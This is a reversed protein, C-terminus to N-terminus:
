RMRKAFRGIDMERAVTKGEFVAGYLVEALYPAGLVGRTGLGNLIWVNDYVPHHGVLPRRDIVTPRIGAEHATITYECTILKELREILEERGAETITDSLDDRNYTAGIKYCDGGEPYIVGDGKLIAEVSLEPACFTLLEGKCPAMPLAKFFPNASVGCGECFVIHRAEVGKYSVSGKGVSLAEYQFRYPHYVGESGWRQLSLSLYRKVDMRGTHLVQGFGFPAPVYPSVRGVLEGSLYESLVPKDSAAFWNNQEEVSAFRRLVAMPHLLQTGLKAEVGGYFDHLCHIQETAMWIPTFRKLVVPNYAGAAVLSAAQSRDSILCFSRGYRELTHAFTVGALGGGVIIFDFMRELGLDRRLSLM